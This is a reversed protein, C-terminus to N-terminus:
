EFLEGQTEVRARRILSSDDLKPNSLEKTVPFANVEVERSEEGMIKLTQATPAESLWNAIADRQLIVPMRDHYDGIFISPRTTLITTELVSQDEGEQWLGAFFWHSSDGDAPHLLYPQKRGPDGKWEFFGDAPILCRRRKVSDKFSPKEAVTELRANTLLNSRGAARFGWHAEFGIIEGENIRLALMTDSPCINYQKKLKRPIAIEKGLSKKLKDAAQEYTYRNCMGRANEFTEGGALRIEGSM